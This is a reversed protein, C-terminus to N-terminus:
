FGGQMLGLTLAPSNWLDVVMRYALDAVHIWYPHDPDKDSLLDSIMQGFLSPIPGEVAGSEPSYAFPRNSLDGLAKLASDMLAQTEDFANSFDAYSARLRGLQPIGTSSLTMVRDLFRVAVDHEVEASKDKEAVARGTVLWALALFEFMLVFWTDKQQKIDPQSLCDFTADLVNNAVLASYKAVADEEYKTWENGDWKHSGDKSYWSDGVRVPQTPEKSEV